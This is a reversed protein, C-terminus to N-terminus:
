IWAGPRGGRPTPPRTSWGAVLAAGAAALALPGGAVAALSLCAAAILSQAGVQRASTLGALGLGLLLALLLLSRARSESVGEYGEARDTAVELRAPPAALGPSAGAFFAPRGIRRIRERDSPEPAVAAFPPAEQGEVPLGLSGRAWAIPEEMGTSRLSEALQGRAAKVVELDRAARDRRARDVSRSGAVLAHEAERLTAEHDILLAVLRARDRGSGRDMESVLDLARAAIRDARDLEIREPGVAELGGLTSRVATEAPAYVSVLAPTRGEGARPLAPGRAGASPPDAEWVVSVLRSPSDGLPVAWRSEADLLPEVAAGDVAARILRAGEPPAVILFRGTRPEAQYDALGLASGDPRVVVAVDASRVGASADKGAPGTPEGPPAQVTLTWGEKDVHYARPALGIAGGFEEDQFRAAYPTPRLGATGSTAPLTPTAFVLALSADVVGLGLPAVVPFAVEQGPAIPLRSRLVLRRSGWVPRGPTITWDTSGERSEAVLPLDRGGSQIRGRAAWEPPLRLQIVDLPGGVVEYRLVAVWEASDPHITLQSGITVNSRPPQPAWSLEGVQKPDDIRYARRIWPGGPPADGEAPGSLPSAGGAATALEVTGRSFVELTGASGPGEAPDVWPLRARHRRPGPGPALKSVPIWGRIRVTRRSKQDIRDFRARLPGGPERSWDTLGPSEVDLVILEDPVALDARDLLGGIESLELDCRWDVRGAEIAVRVAPRRRYRVPTPGTLFEVPDRGNYRVTGAFTLRDDPLAGWARVFTEDEVAEGDRAPELRGSWGGPRRAALLGAERDVGLPEVRPFRRVVAGPEGAAAGRGLPRWFDLVITSRDPLPPDVHAIWEPNQATGGWSADVLGPIQVSRPVLGPELGVAITSTRRRTRYTLRARVREGAPDLDWLMLGEVTASPQNAAPEPAAWCVSLRDVPGVLAEIPRGEVAVVRGRATLHQVPPSGEPQELALKAFPARNVKLELSELGGERAPTAACRLSLRTANAPVAVAASGGGPEVIVPSRAGDVTAEIDHVDGVSFVFRSPAAAPRLSYESVIALDPGTSREVRHEAGVVIPGGDRGAGTGPPRAREQLREYDQQRLIARSPPAEPDFEGDYPLLVVIPADPGPAQSGVARSLGVAALVGVGIRLGRRGVLTSGALALPPAAARPGRITARLLRGLRVLLTGFAGVFAGATPEPTLVAWWDHLVVAAIMVLLPAILGRRPPAARRLGVAFVALAAAWGFAARAAVDITTVADGPGPWSTASLRWTSRGPAASRRDAPGEASPEGRWRAASQFRDAADEGWLLAEAVAARWTAPGSPSTAARRSTVVLVDDVMTMTLGRRQLTQVSRSASRGITASAGCRARPDVGEDALASRDIVLPSPGADWRTFLGAFTLDESPAEGLLEDLRRVAEERPTRVASREGPWRWRALGLAEFPWAPRPEAAEVTFGPGPDDVREGSPLSLEWSFSLCPVGFDPLAPRLRRADAAAPPEVRYDLEVARTWEGPGAPLPLTTADGDVAPSARRGDVRAAALRAGPPMRFTLADTQDAAVLLRLRNLSGGGPFSQTALRAERVLGPLPAAKLAETELTLRAGAAYTMARAPRGSTAEGDPGPALRGALAPEVRNLGEGEVLARMARPTEVVAVCVPSLSAPLAALPVRGRGEWPLSARFEVAVRGDASPGAPLELAAGGDPFGARRRQPDPLIAPAIAGGTAADVFSWGALADAEVDFWARVAPGASPGSVEARGAIELRRGSEDVRARLHLRGTPTPEALRVEVPASAEAATWRWALLTRLDGPPSTPPLGPVHAPDIWALGRTEAPAAEVRASALALWAEDAIRRGLPRVRPLSTTRPFRPSGTATAGIRATRGAPAADSPPVTLRLVSPGDAPASQNWPPTGESGVVEVRDVIWGPPIEIAQEPAAGAAGLGDIECELRTSAERLTLRGRVTAAPEAAPPRFTLEAVSGPAAAEFVFAGAEAPEDAPTPIRRGDIERCDRVVRGGDLLVTTVGGTWALPPLPRIAPVTWAGEVPARAHALFRVGAPGTGTAALSVVARRPSGEKLRYERVSPGEVGLLDLGPDLEVTFSDAGPEDGQITWDMTFNASRDPEGPTARLDIRTPGAVWIRSPNGSERAEALNTLRLDAPGFRGSFRWVERGPGDPVAGERRGTAGSPEWGEPVDLSLTTADDGPLALAFIRGRSDPRSRLEWELAVTAEGTSDGPRPEVLVFAEGSTSAAAVAGADPGKLIAPSWPEIPVRSEGASLSLVLESRGTLLGPSFRASHRARVLRPGGRARERHAAAVRGLLADFAEPALARLPTDPPFQSGVLKSPIRVRLVGEPEEIPAPGLAAASFLLLLPVALRRRDAAM